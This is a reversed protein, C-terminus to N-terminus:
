LRVPIVALPSTGDGSNCLAGVNGSGFGPWPLLELKGARCDRPGCFWAKPERGRVRWLRGLEALEEPLTLDDLGPIFLSAILLSGGDGLGDLDEAVGLVFRAL